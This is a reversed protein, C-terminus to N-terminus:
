NKFLANALALNWRSLVSTLNSRFVMRGWSYRGRDSQFVREWTRSITQHSVVIGKLFCCEKNAIILTAITHYVRHISNYKRNQADSWYRLKYYIPSPSVEIDFNNEPHSTRFSQHDWGSPNTHLLCCVAYSILKTAIASDLLPRLRANTVINM